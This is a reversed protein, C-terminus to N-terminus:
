EFAVEGEGPPTVAELRKNQRFAQVPSLDDLFRGETTWQGGRFTFLATAIESGLSYDGAKAAFEVGVLALLRHSVRDRAWHVTDQWRADEWRLREVPDRRGLDRLFAWELSERRIRFLRRAQDERMQDLVTRFMRKSLTWAALGCLPLLGIGIVWQIM